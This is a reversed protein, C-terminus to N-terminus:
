INKTGHQSGFFESDALEACEPTNKPPAKGGKYEEIEEMWERKTERKRGEELRRRKGEGQM